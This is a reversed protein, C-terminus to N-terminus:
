PRPIMARILTVRVSFIFMVQKANNYTVVSSTTVAPGSVLHTCLSGMTVAVGNMHAVVLLFSTVSYYIIPAGREGTHADEHDQAGPRINNILYTSAVQAEGSYLLPNPQFPQRSPQTSASPTSQSSNDDTRPMLFLDAHCVFGSSDAESRTSSRVM